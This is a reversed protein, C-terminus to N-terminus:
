VEKLASRLKEVARKYKSTVTGTPCNLMLGIEKHKYGWLVHLIILRQEDESLVKRMTETVSTEEFPSASEERSEDLPIERNNKNLVNIAHNKAIQLIWARANTGEKYGNIGSKIKVYVTQMADEADAYNKLYSYIFAFVGRKTNEYLKTFASKDGNKIAILLKNLNIQGM